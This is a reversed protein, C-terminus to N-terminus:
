PKFVYIDGTRQKHSVEFHVWSPTLSIDEVRVIFPYKDQHSLIHYYLEETRLYKSKADVTNGYKHGSLRAGVGMFAKVMREHMIAESGSGTIINHMQEITPIEFPLRMGSDKYKGGFCWDNVTIVDNTNRKLDELTLPLNPNIWDICRDGIAPHNYIDPHVLERVDFSPSIMTM